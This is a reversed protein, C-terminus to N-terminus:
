SQNPPATAANGGLTSQIAAALKERDLPKQFCVKIGAADAREKYKAPETGSIIMIPIKEAEPTRHIWDIAFFGDQVPGGLNTADLPFSLDVLILDPKEQRVIKIAESIEGCMLVKYGKERLAFYVARQIVPNDDLVLIKGLPAIATQPTM